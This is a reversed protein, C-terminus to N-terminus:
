ATVRSLRKRADAKPPDFVPDADKWVELFERYMKAADQMRGSEQYAVGFYYYFRAAEIPYAVRQDGYRRGIAEFVGVAEDVRGAKMYALGLYYGHLFQPHIEWAREFATSAPAYDGRSLDLWGKAMWYFCNALGPREAVAAACSDLAAEAEELREAAALFFVHDDLWEKLAGTEGRAIDLMVRSETVAEETEGREALIAAKLRVKMRHDEGANGELRDLALGRNLEAVAEDLKGQYASIAATYFRGRGRAGRDKTLMMDRFYNAARGYDRRLMSICGLSQMSPYFDARRRLSEKYAVVAEDPRGNRSLLDGRTDYPNHQYPFTKIYEDCALLAGEHDGVAERAYALSNWFTADHRDIELAKEYCSVASEHKGVGAYLSGMLAHADKEGPYDAAIRKLDAIAGELDSALYKTQASIYRRERETIKGFHRQAQQLLVNAEAPTGRIQPGTLRFAAMAFTSDLELAKWYHEKAEERNLKKLAEDGLVFQRYAEPSSTTVQPRHQPSDNPRRAIPV